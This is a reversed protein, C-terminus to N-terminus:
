IRAQQIVNQQRMVREAEALYENTGLQEQMWAVYEAVNQEVPISPQWGLAELRSTDSITHRTDGLRFEGTVAAQLDSDFADLMMQAFELVTVARGGGVNFVGFDARSDEMVLVNAAAVDRVNIYDRLQLGDEYITPPMGNLLLMAFRRAIGSYANYFSNRPGQVYTYRMCSTPIGYRRGLRDSLLEIMYKSIAYSTGPSVTAEDILTPQLPGGCSQCHHDWDGILLQEQLRPRPTIIQEPPLNEYAHVRGSDESDRIIFDYGAAASCTPCFYQGEGCVSQSSAFVVKEVPYKKRNAVILEFILASSEANTHIFRSFDPMYDQYAALHVVYNVGDMAQEMDARNAVDGKIFEAHANLWPPPGHPHVRPQLNDLIRVEYGKELLLDVTWSGIFGAGGTVLVKSM